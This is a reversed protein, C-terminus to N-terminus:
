RSRVLLALPVARLGPWEHTGSAGRVRLQSSMGGDLLVSDRCDLAGMLASMQPTTPGTPLAAVAQPADLRTIAILVRGDPTIGLALRSDHHQTDVGFGPTLLERPVLGDRLLAPYSQFALAVDGATRVAEISDASVLRARGLTDVVFAMSLPGVGPKARERGDAVQWGWPTGGRFQGANCAVRAEAPADRLTWGGRLGSDRTRTALSFRTQRPDIRVVHLRLGWPQNSYHVTLDAREVGPAVPQWGLQLQLGERWQAPSDDDIAISGDARVSPGAASSAAAVM